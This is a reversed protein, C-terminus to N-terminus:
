RARRDVSFQDAPFYDRCSPCYLVGKEEVAKDYSAGPLLVDAHCIVHTATKDNTEAPVAPHDPLVIGLDEDKTPAAPLSTVVGASAETVSDIANFDDLRM